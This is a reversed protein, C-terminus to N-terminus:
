SIEMLGKLEEESPDAVSYADDLLAKSTVIDKPTRFSSYYTNPVPMVPDLFRNAM